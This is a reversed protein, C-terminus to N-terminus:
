PYQYGCGPQNNDVSDSVVPVGPLDVTQPYYSILYISRISVSPALTVHWRTTEHSSLVLVHVGPREVSLSAEGMPRTDPSQDNRTEYVGFVHEEAAGAPDDGPAPNPPLAPDDGPAPNPPPAPDGLMPDGFYLSGCASALAQVFALRKMSTWRMMPSLRRMM